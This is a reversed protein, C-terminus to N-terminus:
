PKPKTGGGLAESLERVLDTDNLAATKAMIEDDNLKDESIIFKQKERRLRVEAVFIWGILGAVIELFHEISM